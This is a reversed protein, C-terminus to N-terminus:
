QIPDILQFHIGDGQILKSERDERRNSNTM